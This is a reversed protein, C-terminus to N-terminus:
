KNINLCSKADKERVIVFTVMWAVFILFLEWSVSVFIDTEAPIEYGEKAGNYGGQFLQSKTTLPFSFDYGYILSPLLLV